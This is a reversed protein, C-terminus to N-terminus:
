VSIMSCVIASTTFDTMCPASSAIMTSNIKKREILLVTMMPSAIGTDTKMVSKRMYKVFIEILMIEIAPKSSPM